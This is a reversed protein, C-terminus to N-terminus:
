FLAAASAGASVEHTVQLVDLVHLVNESFIWQPIFASSWFLSSVEWRTCLRSGCMAFPCSKYSSPLFCPYLMPFLWKRRDLGSEKWHSFLELFNIAVRNVQSFAWCLISYSLLLCTSMFTSNLNWSKELFGGAGARQCVAWLSRFLNFNKGIMLAGLFSSPWTPFACPGLIVHLNLETECCGTGLCSCGCCSM